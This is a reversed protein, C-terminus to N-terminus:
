GRRESFRGPATGTSAPAWPRAAGEGAPPTRPNSQGGLRYLAALDRHLRAREEVGLREGRAAWDRGFARLAELYAHLGPIPEAALRREIRTLRGNLTM